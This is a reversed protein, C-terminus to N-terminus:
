SVREETTDLNTASDWGYIKESVFESNLFFVRMMDFKALRYKSGALARM